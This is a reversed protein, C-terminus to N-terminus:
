NHSPTPAIASGSRRHAAGHVEYVQGQDRVCAWETPLTPTVASGSHLATSRVGPSRKRSSALSPRHPTSVQWAATSMTAPQELGLCAACCTRAPRAQRANAPSNLNYRCQKQHQPSGHQDAQLCPGPALMHEAHMCSSAQLPYVHGADGHVAQTAHWLAKM